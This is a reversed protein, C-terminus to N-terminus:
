FIYVFLIQHFNSRPQSNVVSALIRKRTSNALGKKEQLVSFDPNFRHSEWPWSSWPGLTTFGGGLFPHFVEYKLLFVDRSKKTGFPRPSKIKGHDNKQDCKSIPGQAGKM